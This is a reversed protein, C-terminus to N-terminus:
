RKSSISESLHFDDLERRVSMESDADGSEGESSYIIPLRIRSRNVASSFSEDDTLEPDDHDQGFQNSLLSRFSSCSIIPFIISIKM